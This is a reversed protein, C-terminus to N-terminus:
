KMESEGFNLKIVNHNLQSKPDQNLEIQKSREASQHKHKSNFHLQMIRYTIYKVNNNYNTFSILPKIKQYISQNNHAQNSSNSKQM